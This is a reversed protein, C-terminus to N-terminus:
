WFRFVFSCIFERNYPLSVRITDKDRGIIKGIFDIGDRNDKVLVSEGIKVPYHCQAIMTERFDYVM